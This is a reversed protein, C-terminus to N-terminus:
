GQHEEAVGLVYRGQDQPAECIAQDQLLWCGRIGSANRLPDFDFDLVM